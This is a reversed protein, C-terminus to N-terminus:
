RKREKGNIRRMQEKLYDKIDDWKAPADSRISHLYFMMELMDVDSFCEIAADMKELESPTFKRM